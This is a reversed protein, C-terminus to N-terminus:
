RRPGVDSLDIAKFGLAFAPSTEKLTFDHNEFDVFEPDAVVSGEELGYREYAEDLTLLEEKRLSIHPEEGSIDWILNNKSSIEDADYLERWAQIIPLGDTCLINTDYAVREKERYETLTACVGDNSPCVFINNRVLATGYGQHFSPGITDYVINNEVVLPSSAEDLYIGWGMYHYPEATVGHILNGSIVTGPQYGLTYIGGLDRLIGDGVDYIHNKTILNDHSASEEFGHVMGVSIGSYNVDGVENHEIVNNGTHVLMIGCAGSYIRGTHLIRCDAVTNHDTATPQTEYKAGRMMIGGAGGYLFDCSRIGIEHCGDGVLVGYHGYNTLTCGEMTCGSAFGFEVFGGMFRWGQGGTAKPEDNVIRVYDRKSVTFTLGRLTVGTIPQEETGRIALIAEVTPAYAEITKPTVSEDAPVYYVRGGDAYWDNPEGFKDAVNELYFTQGTSFQKESRRQMTVTRTDPDYSEIPSHEDVWYHSFNVWVREPNTTLPLKNQAVFWISGDNTDGNPFETTKMSLMKDGAPFRPMNAREGNVFFDLITDDRLPASLCEVGNFTDAQWDTVRYGGILRVEGDGFPEITLDSMAGDITLTEEVCYTGAKIRITLPDANGAEREAKVYSLAEGLTAYDAGEGVLIATKDDTEATDTETECSEGSEAPIEAKECATLAGVCLIAALAFSVLKKM